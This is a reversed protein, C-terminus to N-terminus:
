EEAGVQSLGHDNLRQQVDQLLVRLLHALQNQQEADLGTLLDAERTLVQDVTSEILQHGTPTLEVIVSRRRGEGPRRTVLGEREARAVRQSIAGATILSRAALERTTLAYPEGARRLVSLLDLTATDVGARALVRRRDDGFLKALRWLPTVIGISSVPTGPRERQWAAAIEEVPYPPTENAPRQAPHDARTHDHDSTM